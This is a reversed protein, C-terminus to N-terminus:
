EEKRYSYERIELTERTSEERELPRWRPSSISPCLSLLGEIDDKNNHLRADDAGGATMGWEGGRGEWQVGSNAQLLEHWVYLGFM